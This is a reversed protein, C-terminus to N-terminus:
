RLANREPPKYELLTGSLFGLAREQPKTKVLAAANEFGPEDLVEAARELPM